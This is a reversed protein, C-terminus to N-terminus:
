SLNEREGEAGRGQEQERDLFLFSFFLFSFSVLLRPTPGGQGAEGSRERDGGCSGGHSGPSAGLSCGRQSLDGKEDFGARRPRSGGRLGATM